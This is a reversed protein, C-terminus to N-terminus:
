KEREVKLSDALAVLTKKITENSTKLAQRLLIAVLDNLLVYAEGNVEIVKM